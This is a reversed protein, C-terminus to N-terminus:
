TFRSSSFGFEKPIMAFSKKFDGQRAERRKAAKERKIQKEREQRRALLERGEGLRPVQFQRDANIRSASSMRRQSKMEESARHTFWDRLTSMAPIEDSESDSDWASRLPPAPPPRPPAVDIPLRPSAFSSPSSLYAPGAMFDAPSRRPPKPPAQQAQEPGMSSTPYHVSDSRERRRSFLTAASFSLGLSSRKKKSSATSPIVSDGCLQQSHQSHRTALDATFRHYEGAAGVGSFQGHPSEWTPVVDDDLDMDLFSESLVDTRKHNEDGLSKHINLPAPIANAEPSMPGWSSGRSSHKDDDAELVPVLCYDPVGYDDTMRPESRTSPLGPSVSAKPVMQNDMVDLQLGILQHVKQSSRRSSRALPNYSSRSAPSSLSFVAQEIDSGDHHESNPNPHYQQAPSMSSSSFASSRRESKGEQETSSKAMRRRTQLEM